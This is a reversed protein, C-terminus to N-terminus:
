TRRKRGCGGCSKRKIVAKPKSVKTPSAIKASSSKKDVVIVTRPKDGVVMKKQVSKFNESEKTNM